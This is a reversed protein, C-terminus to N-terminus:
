DISITRVAPATKEEPLKPVSVTLIGDEVKASVANRDTDDPLIYSQSFQHFSFERRIYRSDNEKKEQKRSYSVTMIGDADIKLEIDEKKLGPVAFELEYNTGNETVNLAPVNNMPRESFWDGNM